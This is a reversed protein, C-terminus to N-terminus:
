LHSFLKVETNVGLFVIKMLLFGNSFMLSYVKCLYNRHFLLCCVIHFILFGRRGTLLLRCEKLHSKQFTNLWYVRLDVLNFDTGQFNIIYWLKM